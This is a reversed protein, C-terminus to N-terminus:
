ASIVILYNYSIKAGGVPLVSKNKISKDGSVPGASIREIKKEEEENEEM